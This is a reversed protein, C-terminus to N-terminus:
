TLYGGGGKVSSTGGKVSPREAGPRIKVTQGGFRTAYPLKTINLGSLRMAKNLDTETNETTKRPERHTAATLATNIIHGYRLAKLAPSCLVQRCAVGQLQGRLYRCHPVLLSNVM